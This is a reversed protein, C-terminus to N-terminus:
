IGKIRESRMLRKHRQTEKRAEEDALALKIQLEQTVESGSLIKVLPRKSKDTFQSRTEKCDPVRYFSRPYTNGSDDDWLTLTAFAVSVAKRGPVSYHIELPTKGGVWEVVLIGKPVSKGTSAVAIKATLATVQEDTLAPKDEPIETNVAPEPDASNANNQAAIMEILDPRTNEKTYRINMNDAMERLDVLKMMEITKKSM